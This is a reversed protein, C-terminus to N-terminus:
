ERTVGLSRPEGDCLPTDCTDNPGDLREGCDACEYTEVTTEPNPTRETMEIHYINVRVAILRNGTSSAV